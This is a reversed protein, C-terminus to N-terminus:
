SNCTCSRRTAIWSFNSGMCLFVGGSVHLLYFHPCRKPSTLYLRLYKGAMMMAFGYILKCSRAAFDHLGTEDLTWVTEVIWESTDLLLYCVLYFVALALFLVAFHKKATVGRLLYYLIYYLFIGGVFWFMTPWVFVFLANRLTLFGRRTTVLLIVTMIMAPLYLREARRGVWTGFSGKVPCLCFGSVIFFLGVGLAGGTGLAPIPYIGDFHSNIVLLIALTKVIDVTVFHKREKSM